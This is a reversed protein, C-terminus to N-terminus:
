SKVKIKYMVGMLLWFYYADKSAEFVDIFVANASFGIIVGIFGAMILNKRGKLSALSSRFLHFIILSFSLFGLLGTEGLLRLYDNDTALGLSSYGTGLFPNKALARLARPWEVEFRIRSSRAAVAAVEEPKPWTRVERFVVTREIEGEGEELVAPTSTPALVAEKAAPVRTPTLSVTPERKFVSAMKETVALPVSSALRANLEKSQYGCLLSFGLILPLWLWRRLLLLTATIGILYATYSVRSATLILLYFSAGGALILWIKLLKKRVKFVLAPILTLIMVLWAALDYHGAFTSSIRTWTDLRLLVGKSFEENMTSIVPLNLYKQGMGYGFVLLATLGLGGSFERITTFALAEFALFFLSMYEIRRLFHFLGLRWATSQNLFVANLLSLLGVLWYFLFLKFIKQKFVPFGRKFQWFVWILIAGLVVWDELRIAVYTGEVATLPFKPYLPIFLLLVFFVIKLLSSKSRSQRSLRGTLKKLINM